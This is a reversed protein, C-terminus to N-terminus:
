QEVHGGLAATRCAQNHSVVKQQEYSLHNNQRYERGYRHLVDAVELRNKNNSATVSQRM